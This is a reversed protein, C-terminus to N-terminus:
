SNGNLCAMVMRKIKEINEKINELILGPLFEKVTWKIIKGIGLISVNIEGLTSEKVM